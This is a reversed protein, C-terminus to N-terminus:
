QPVFVFGDWKVPLILNKGRPNNTDGAAVDVFFQKGVDKSLAAQTKGLNSGGLNQVEWVAQSRGQRSVMKFRVPINGGRTRVLAPAGLPVTSPSSPPPSTAGQKGGRAFLLLMLIGLGNM